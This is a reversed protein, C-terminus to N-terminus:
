AAYLLTRSQDVAQQFYPNRIAGPQVLDVPKNFLKELAFKLDFYDGFLDPTADPAFTVLFDVDHCDDLSRADLASGFVELLRVHYRRCLSEISSQFPQLAPIM